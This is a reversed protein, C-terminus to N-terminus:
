RALLSFLLYLVAAGGILLLLPPLLLQYVAIVIAVFDRLDPKVEGPDDHGAPEAQDTRYVGPPPDDRSM